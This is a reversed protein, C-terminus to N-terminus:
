IVRTIKISPVFYFTDEDGVRLGSKVNIVFSELRM